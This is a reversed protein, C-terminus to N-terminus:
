HLLLEGRTIVPAGGEDRTEFALAQGDRAAHVELRAPMLVMGSFRCRVRRVAAPEIGYHALLKSVSLALTATGHLIIGPLGAARAYAIDTHIPNWIRACETYVHAATVGVAIEGALALTHSRRPPDEVEVVARAPGDLTVDRYLVGFDSTTVQVGSADRAEFRFVVFAGPSRQVAAAIRAFISLTEGARLPRHLVLDHQAHVLRANNAELPALSRLSRSAPWEYCVPFLPHVWPGAPATTDYYRPDSEGLGASYAMVWRADIDQELPGAAEGVLASSLKM